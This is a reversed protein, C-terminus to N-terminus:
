NLFFRNQFELAQQRDRIHESLIKVFEYAEIHHNKSLTRKCVISAIPGIYETLEQQCSDIFDPTLKLDSHTTNSATLQTGNNETTPESSNESKLKNTQYTQLELQLIKLTNEIDRDLFGLPTKATKVLLLIDQTCRILTIYGNESRVAIQQIEQHQFVQYIHEAVHLTTGVITLVSDDKMKLMVTLPHGQSSILAVEESEPLQRIFEHLIQSIKSTIM